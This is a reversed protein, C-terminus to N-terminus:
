FTMLPCVLFSKELTMSAKFGCRALTIPFPWRSLIGPLEGKLEMLLYEAFVCRHKPAEFSQDCKECRWLGNVEEVKKNCGDNACAPYSVNDSKIHMVTGRASFYEPQGPMGYGAQKIEDVARLEARNFGSSSSMTNTSPHAKFNQASGDTDYWARLVFCEKIDPNIHM